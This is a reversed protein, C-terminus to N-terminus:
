LTVVRDRKLTEVVKEILTQLNKIELVTRSNRCETWEKEGQKPKTNFFTIGANQDLQIKTIQDRYIGIYISTNCWKWLYTNRWFDTALLGVLVFFQCFVLQCCSMLKLDTINWSKHIKLPNLIQLLRFIVSKFYSGKM